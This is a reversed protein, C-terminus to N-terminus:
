VNMLAIPSRGDEGGVCRDESERNVGPLIERKALSFAPEIDFQFIASLIAIIRPLDFFAKGFDPAKARFQDQILGAYIAQL